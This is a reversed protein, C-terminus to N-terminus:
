RHLTIGITNLCCQVPNKIASLQRSHRPKWSHLATGLSNLCYEVSNKSICHQRSGKPCCQMTNKVTCHHGLHTLVFKFLIYINKCHQRSGRPCYQMPHKGTCHQWLPILVVNVCSKKKYLTTQLRKSLMAYPKWSHM